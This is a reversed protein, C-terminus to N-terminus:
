KHPRWGNALAALLNTATKDDRPMARLVRAVEFRWAGDDQAALWGALVAESAGHREAQEILEASAHPASKRFRFIIQVRKGLSDEVIFVFRNKGTKPLASEVQTETTRGLSRRAGDADISIAYPAKGGRWAIWLPREDRLIFNQGRVAMPADLSGDGRAILNTPADEREESGFLEAIQTLIGWSDDGSGHQSVTFRQKAGTVEVRGGEAMDITVTSAADRTFVIDGVQLPMWVKPPLEAGNRIVSTGKELDAGKLEYSIIFGAAPEEARVAGATLLALILAVVLAFIRM